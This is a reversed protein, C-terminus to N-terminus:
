ERSLSKELLGQTVELQKRLFLNENKLHKVEAQLSQVELNNQHNNKVQRSQSIINHHDGNVTYRKDNSNDFICESQIFIFQQITNTEQNEM